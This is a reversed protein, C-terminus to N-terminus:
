NQNSSRRSKLEDKLFEIREQYEKKQELFEEKIARIDRRHQEDIKDLKAKLEENEAEVAALKAAQRELDEMQQLEKEVQKNCPFEDTTGCILAILINRITSYKCDLYDGAKIRNITGVPVTSKEALTQTTWGLHKKRKFCWQILDSFEMTMLNPVCSIGISDCTICKEYM